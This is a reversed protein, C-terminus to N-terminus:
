NNILYKSALAWALDGLTTDPIGSAQKSSFIDYNELLAVFSDPNDITQIDEILDLHKDYDDELPFHDKCQQHLWMSLKYLKYHQPKLNNLKTNISAMQLVFNTNKCDIILNRSQTEMIHMLFNHIEM